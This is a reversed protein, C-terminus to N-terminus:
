IPSRRAARFAGELVIVSASDRTVAKAAMPYTGDARIGTEFDFLTAEALGSANPAPV